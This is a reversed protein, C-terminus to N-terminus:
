AYPVLDPLKPSKKNFKQSIVKYTIAKKSLNLPQYFICSLIHIKWNRWIRNSENM